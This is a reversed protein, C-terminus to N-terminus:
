LADLEDVIDALNLTSKMVQFIPRVGFDNAATYAACAKEYRITTSRPMIILVRSAPQPITIFGSNNAAICHVIKM